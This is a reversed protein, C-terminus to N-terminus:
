QFSYYAGCRIVFFFRTTRLRCVHAFQIADLLSAVKVWFFFVCVWYMRMADSVSTRVVREPWTNAVSQSDSHNTPESASASTPQTCTNPEHGRKRHLSHVTSRYELRTLILEIRNDIVFQPNECLCTIWRVTLEVVFCCSSPAATAPASAWHSKYSIINHKEHTSPIPRGPPPSNDFFLSPNATHIFLLGHTYSQCRRFALVM